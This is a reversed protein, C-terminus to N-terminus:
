PYVFDPREAVIDIMFKGIHGQFGAKFSEINTGAVDSNLM